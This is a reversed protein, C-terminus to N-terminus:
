GAPREKHKHEKEEAATPFRSLNVGLEALIDPALAGNRDNARMFDLGPCYVHVPGSSEAKFSMDGSSVSVSNKPLVQAPVLKLSTAGLFTFSEFSLIAHEPKVFLALQKRYHNAFEGFPMKKGFLNLDACGFDAQEAIEIQDLKKYHTDIAVIARIFAVLLPGDEKLGYEQPGVALIAKIIEYEQNVAFDAAALQWPLVFDLKKKAQEWLVKIDQNQTILTRFHCNPNFGIM